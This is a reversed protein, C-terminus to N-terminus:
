SPAVCSYENYSRFCININLHLDKAFYFLLHDQCNLKLRKFLSVGIVTKIIYVAGNFIMADEEIDLTIHPLKM